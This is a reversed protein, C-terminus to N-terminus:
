RITIKFEQEYIEMDDEHISALRPCEKTTFVQNINNEALYKIWERWGFFKFAVEKQQKHSYTM